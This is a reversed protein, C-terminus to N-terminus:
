PHCTKGFKGRAADGSLIDPTDPYNSTIRRFFVEARTYPLTQTKQGVELIKSPQIVGKADSIVKSESHLKSTRVGFTSIKFVYQPIILVAM